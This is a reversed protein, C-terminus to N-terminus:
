LLISPQGMKRFNSHPTNVTRTILENQKDKESSHVLCIVIKLARVDRSTDFPINRICELFILYIVVNLYKTSCKCSLM